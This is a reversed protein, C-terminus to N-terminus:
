MHHFGAKMRSIRNEVNTSKRTPRRISRASSCRVRRRRSTTLMSALRPMSPNTIDWIQVGNYNGQIAYNDKFALDSNTVGVFAEPPPTTSLLRLNWIAEGADFLGPKLGVRPDPSPATQSNNTTTTTVEPPMTADTGTTVPKPACAAVGLLGAILLLSWGQSAKLYAPPRRFLAKGKM